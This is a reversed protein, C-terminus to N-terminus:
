GIKYQTLKIKKKERVKERVEPMSEKQSMRNAVSFARFPLLAFIKKEGTNDEGM